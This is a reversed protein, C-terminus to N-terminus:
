EKPVIPRTLTSQPGSSEAEKARRDAAVFAILDNFDRVSLTAGFNNPMLSSRVGQQGAVQQTPFSIEKGSSEAVVTRKGEIRRFL